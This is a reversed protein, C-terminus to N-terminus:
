KRGNRTFPNSTKKGPDAIQLRSKAGFIGFQEAMKRAEMLHAAPPVDGSAWALNIAGQLNCYNGFMTSDRETVFLSASVRGIEDLWVESGASTLWNPEIPLDSPATFEIKHSDRHPQLTGRSEKVSPLTPKTGRKM